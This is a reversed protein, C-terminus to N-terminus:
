YPAFRESSARGANLSALEGDPYADESSAPLEARIFGLILDRAARDGEDESQEDWLEFLRRRRREVSQTRNEWVMMLESRLRRLSTERARSRGERELREILGAHEEEFWTREAARPDAGAAGMVMDGLDFSGSGSGLDYEVAGRDSYSVSGDNHITATFAHGRYHYNGEADPGSLPPHSDSLHTKTAAVAGLHGEHLAEAEAVSLPRVSEGAPGLGAPGSPLIPGPDDHLVSRAAASLPDIRAGRLRAIRAEETEASPAVEIFGASAAGPTAVLTGTAGMASTSDVTESPRVPERLRRAEAAAAVESAMPPVAEVIEQIEEELDEPLAIEGVELRVDSTLRPPLPPLEPVLALTGVAVAHLVLSAASTWALSKHSSFRM